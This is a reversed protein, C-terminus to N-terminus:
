SSTDRPATAARRLPGPLRPWSPIGHRPRQQRVHSGDELEPDPDRDRERRQTPKRDLGPGQRLGPLDDGYCKGDQEGGGGRPGEVLVGFAIEVGAHGAGAAPGEDGAPQPGAGEPEEGHTAHEDDPEREGVQGGVGPRRGVDERASEGIADDVRHPELAAGPEVDDDASRGAGKGDERTGGRDIGGQARRSQDKGEHEKKPRRRVEPAQRKGGAVLIGCGAHRHQGHDHALTAACLDDEHV